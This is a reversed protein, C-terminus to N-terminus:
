PNALQEVRYFKFSSTASVDSFTAPSHSPTNTSVPQWNLLDPSSQVVYTLGPEVSYDFSFTGQSYQPQSLSPPLPAIITVNVPASTSSVGAATAIATLAYNGAASLTASVTFPATGASGLSTAGAFYQVNTVTGGSVTANATLNLTAPATFTAGSAPSTMSVSPPVAVAPPSSRIYAFGGSLHQGWATFKVSLYIDENILHMVMPQNLILGKLNGNRMSELSQYSLSAFDSLSGFAWETDAPSVAGAAREGAATNYLVDRSGRTLAVKGALITDSRASSSQTFKLDPGNWITAAKGFPIACLALALVGMRCGNLGAPVQTMNGILLSVPNQEQFRSV